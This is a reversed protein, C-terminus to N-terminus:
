VVAAKSNREMASPLWRKRLSSAAMALKTGAREATRAEAAEEEEEHDCGGGEEGKTRRRKEKTTKEGWYCLAKNIKVGGGKALPRLPPCTPMTSPPMPSWATSLSCAPM